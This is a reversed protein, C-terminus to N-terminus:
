SFEPGLLFYCGAGQLFVVCSDERGGGGKTFGNQGGGHNCPAAYIGKNKDVALLQHILPHLPKDLKEIQPLLLNSTEASTTFLERTFEIDGDDLAKHPLPYDFIENRVVPLEDHIFTM